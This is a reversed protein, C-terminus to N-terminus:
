NLYKKYRKRIQALKFELNEDKEYYNSQNLYDIAQLLLFQKIKKLSFDKDRISDVVIIINNAIQIMQHAVMAKNKEIFLTLSDIIRNVTENEVSLVDKSKLLQDVQNNLTGVTNQLLQIKNKLDTNDNELGIRIDDEKKTSAGEDINRSKSLKIKASQSSPESSLKSKGSNGNNKYDVSNIRFYSITELLVDINKSIKDPSFSEIISTPNGAPGFIYIYPPSTCGEIYSWMKNSERNEYKHHALDDLNKTILCYYIDVVDM